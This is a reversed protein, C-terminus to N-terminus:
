GLPSQLRRDAEAILRMAMGSAGIVNGDKVLLVFHFEREGQTVRARFWYEGQHIACSFATWRIDLRMQRVLKLLEACMDNAPGWDITDRGDSAM